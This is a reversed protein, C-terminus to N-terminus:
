GMAAAVHTELRDLARDIVPKAAAADHASGQRAAHEM